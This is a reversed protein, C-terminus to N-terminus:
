GQIHTPYRPTANLRTKRAYCDGDATCTGGMHGCPPTPIWPPPHAIYVAPQDRLNRQAQTAPMPFRGCRSTGCGCTRGKLGASCPTSQARRSISCPAYSGKRPLAIRLASAYKPGLLWQAGLAELAAALGVSPTTTAGAQPGAVIALPTGGIPLRAGAIPARPPMQGPPLRRHPHALDRPAALTPRGLSLAHLRPDGPYVSSVCQGHPSCRPPWRAPRERPCMRSQTCPSALAGATRSRLYAKSTAVQKWRSPGSTAM